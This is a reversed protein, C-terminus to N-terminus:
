SGVLPFTAVVSGGRSGPGAELRGGLEDIRRRMGSLGVGPSWEAAGSGDDDVRVELEEGCRLRVSARTARAHRAVNTLAETAVRYVAVELAAPLAPLDDTELEVSLRTGDSRYSLQEVRQRLAEVLGLEDLAPPRLHDVVRRVSEIARRAETQTRRVLEDARGPDTLRLNAAADASLALGTLSPGLDDHLEHRLRRREEEVATVQRERSLQLEESLGTAKVALALPGTLLAVAQLDKASLTREGPRLGLVLNGVRETPRGLEVRHVRVGDDGAEGLVRGHADHVAVYPMRLTTALSEAVAAFSAGHAQLHPSVSSMVLAPDRRDGYTAQEVLRQLRPYLPGVMLAVALTALVSRETWTSLLRDLVTVLVLYVTLAGLSLLLWTLARSVVLRIDLLQHRTIAVTIAIPILPIAFLVLVPTGAVLAWPVVLTIVVATALVLWGLQSRERENGRRYRVALAGLAVALFGLTRLESLVWLPDLSGHQSATLTLYGRPLSSLMAEPVTGLELAFLPATVVFGVAVPRWRPSPLRGTPFLLLALPLLLAISWPWAWAAVTVCLRQLEVPAGHESLLVALPVAAATTAHGVGDAALLWGIPNSPRHWAIVVGCLGFAAGMLGNTVVFGNLAESWSLGVVVSLVTAALVEASVLVGLLLARATM